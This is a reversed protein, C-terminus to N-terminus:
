TQGRNSFQHSPILIGNPLYRPHLRMHFHLNSHYQCGGVFEGDVIGQVYFEGILKKQVSPELYLDLTIYLLPHVEVNQTHLPLIGEQIIKVSRRRLHLATM